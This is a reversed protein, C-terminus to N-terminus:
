FTFFHNVINFSINNFSLISFDIGHGVITINEKGEMSLTGKIINIGTPITITGGSKVMILQTQLEKEINSSFLFNISFLLTIILQLYQQKM